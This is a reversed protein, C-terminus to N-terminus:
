QIYYSRSQHLTQSHLLCQVPNSSVFRLVSVAGSAVWTEWESAVVGCFPQVQFLCFRVVAPHM